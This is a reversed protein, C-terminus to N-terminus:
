QVYNEKESFVLPQQVLELAVTRTAINLEEKIIALDVEHRFLGRECAAITIYFM